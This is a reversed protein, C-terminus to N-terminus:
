DEAPPRAKLRPDKPTVARAALKALFPDRAIRKEQWRIREEESMNKTEEYIQNRVQRTWEVCDFSKKAKTESKM